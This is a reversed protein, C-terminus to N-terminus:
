PVRVPHHSCYGFECHDVFEDSKETTSALCGASGSAACSRAMPPVSVTAQRHSPILNECSQHDREHQHHEVYNDLARTLSPAGFFILREL